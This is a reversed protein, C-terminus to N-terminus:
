NRFRNWEGHLPTTLRYDGFGTYDIFVFRRNLEFYEWIEYPKSNYEFPRREINSPPGLIVYVMGMDTRWGELYHSFNENAFAVRRYYEVFVQNEETGPTPDKTKWYDLYRKLKEDGTAGEKIFRIESDSAIYIMQDIAKDLDDIISPTGVLRSVFTKYTEALQKGESSLLTVKVNYDGIGFELGEFTYFVQDKGQNVKQNVTKTYIVKQSKDTIDYRISIEVDENSYIEFFIPLEGSQNSVNRSINPVIRRGTETETKRAILMLDSVAFDAQLNRVTFMDEKVFKRRTDSDEVECRILYNKPPLNYSRLSLNYNFRSVTEKFDATEIRENWMKEMILNERKDDFFSVTITYAARFGESTQVFQILSYPVQVFVDVRNNDNEDSSFNLADYYFSIESTSAPQNLRPHQALVLGNLILILIFFKYM